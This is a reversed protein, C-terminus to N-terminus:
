VIVEFIRYIRSTLLKELEFFFIKALTNGMASSLDSVMSEKSFSMSDTEKIQVTFPFIISEETYLRELANSVIEEQAVKM